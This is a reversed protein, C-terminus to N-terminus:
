VEHLLCNILLGVGCVKINSAGAIGLHQGSATVVM